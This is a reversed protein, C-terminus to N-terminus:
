VPALCQVVARDARLSANVHDYTLNEEIWDMCGFVGPLSPGGTAGTERVVAQFDTSRSIRATRRLYPAFSEPWSPVPVVKDPDLNWRMEWVKARFRHRIIQAGKPERFEFYAFKNGFVKERGILPEVREPFTSLRSESVAQAADTQPLPLWVKLVKSHYPPTVVVSFDVEYTVPNSRAATYAEDPNWAPKNGEESWATRAIGLSVVFILSIATCSHSPRM